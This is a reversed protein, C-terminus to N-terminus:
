YRQSYRRYPSSNKLLGIGRTEIFSLADLGTREEAMRRGDSVSGTLNLINEKDVINYSGMTNCKKGHELSIPRPNAM